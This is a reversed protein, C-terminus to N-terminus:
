RRHLRRYHYGIEALRDHFRGGYRYGDVAFLVKPEIQRFRDVVSSVGFEPSCCSWIAGLSATALFAILAEPVNPLFGVVRDGRQVGLRRLGTAVAAVRESLQAYTLTRLLEDEAQFLVAPHDDRRRLAHEAFNLEAGSFWKAGPMKRSDLVDEYSRAAMVQFFDWISAWFAELDDVSWRWLEDYSRFTLGRTQRLWALYRTLNARAKQDESPEWLLAGEAIGPTSAESM